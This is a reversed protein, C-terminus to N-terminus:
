SECQNWSFSLGEEIIKSFDDMCRDGKSIIYELVESPYGLTHRVGVMLVESHPLSISM